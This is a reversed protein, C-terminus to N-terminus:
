ISRNIDHDDEASSIELIQELYPYNWIWGMSNYNDNNVPASM